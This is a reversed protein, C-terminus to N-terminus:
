WAPTLMETHSGEASLDPLSAGLLRSIATRAYDLSASQHFLQIDHNAQLIMASLEFTLQESDIQPDLQGQCIASEVNSRVLASGRRVADVIAERVPGPRDDFESAASIFICGGEFMGLYDIWASMMVSLREIGRPKSNAVNVVMEIFSDVATEIIALQLDEKSGFLTQLTSKSMRTIQAFKGFSLGSLGDVSALNAAKALLFTRKHDGARTM